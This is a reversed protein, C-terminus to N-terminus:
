SKYEEPRVFEVGRVKAAKWKEVLASSAIELTPKEALHFLHRGSPIKSQDLVLKHIRDIWHKDDEDVDFKSAKKNMCSVNNLLHVIRTSEDDRKGSKTVLSAPYEEFDAEGISKVAEIAKQSMLFYMGAWWVDLVGKLKSLMVVAGSLPIALKEGRWLGSPADPGVGLKSPADDPVDRELVYYM